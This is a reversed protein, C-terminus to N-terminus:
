RRHPRRRSTARGPRCRAHRWWPRGPGRGRRRAPRQSARSSTAATSASGSRASSSSASACSSPGLRSTRPTATRDGHPHAHEGSETAALAPTTIAAMALAGAGLLALRAGAALQPADADRPVRTAALLLVVVVAELAVSLADAIGVAEATWPGPRGSASRGPSCGVARDGLRESRRPGPRRPPTAPWPSWPGSSRCRGIVAFFVGYVWSEALHERVVALHVLGAGLSAFGAWCRAVDSRGFGRAGHDSAPSAPADGRVNKDQSLGVGLLLLASALHLVNDAGNLSLINADSDLIFLGVIGLLLYVAGVLVNAGKAASVSKRAALLM